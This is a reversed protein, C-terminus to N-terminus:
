ETICTRNVGSYRRAAYLAMQEKNRKGGGGRSINVQFNGKGANLILLV